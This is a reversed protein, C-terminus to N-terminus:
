SSSNPRPRQLTECEKRLEQFFGKTAKMIAPELAFGLSRSTRGILQMVVNIATQCDSVPTFTV